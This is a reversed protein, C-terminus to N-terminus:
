YKKEKSKSDVLSDNKDVHTENLSVNVLLIMKVTHASMQEWNLKQFGLLIVLLEYNNSLEGDKNGSTSVARKFTWSKWILWIKLKHEHRIQHEWVPIIELWLSGWLQKTPCPTRHIIKKLPQMDNYAYFGCKLIDLDIKKQHQYMSYACPAM